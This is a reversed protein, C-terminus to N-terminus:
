QVSVQPWNKHFKKWLVVQLLNKERIDKNSGYTQTLLNIFATEHTEFDDRNFKGLDQVLVKGTDWGREICMMEIMAHV